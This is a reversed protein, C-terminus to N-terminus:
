GRASRTVIDRFVDDGILLKDWVADKTIEQVLIRDNQTTLTAIRDYIKRAEGIPAPLVWESYLIKKAGMARLKAWLPEYEFKDKDIIDYSILYLAM